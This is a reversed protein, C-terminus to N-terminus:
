SGPSSLKKARIQVGTKLSDELLRQWDSFETKDIADVDITVLLDAPPAAAVTVQHVPYLRAFDAFVTLDLRQVEGAAAVEVEAGLARALEGLASGTAGVHVRRRGVATSWDRLVRRQRQLSLLAIILVAFAGASGIHFALNVGDM